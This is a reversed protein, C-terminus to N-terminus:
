RTIRFGRVRFDLPGTAPVELSTGDPLTLIQLDGPRSVRPDFNAHGGGNVFGPPGSNVHVGARGAGALAPNVVSGASVRPDFNAHGGGNVFGPPGSNVHVGARSGINPGAAALAKSVESAVLSSLEGVTLESLRTTEQFSRPAESGAGPAGPEAAPKDGGAPPQAQGPKTKPEDAM